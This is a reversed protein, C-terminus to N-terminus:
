SFDLMAAQLGAEVNTVSPCVSLTNKITHMDSNDGRENRPITLSTVIHNNILPRFVQIGNDLDVFDELLIGGLASLLHFDETSSLEDTACADSAADSAPLANIM